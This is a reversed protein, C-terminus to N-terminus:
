EWDFGGRSMRALVFANPTRPRVRRVAREDPFYASRWSSQSRIPRGHRSHVDYVQLDSIAPM